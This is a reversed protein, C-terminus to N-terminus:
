YVSPTSIELLDHVCRLTPLILPTPIVTPMTTLSHSSLVTLCETTTGWDYRVKLLAQLAIDADDPDPKCPAVPPVPCFPSPIAPVGMTPAPNIHLPQPLQIPPPLPQPPHYRSPLPPPVGSLPGVRSPIPPVVQNRRDRALLQAPTLITALEPRRPVNRSRCMRCRLHPYDMPLIFECDEAACIRSDSSRVPMDAKVMSQTPNLTASERFYPFCSGQTRSAQLSRSQRWERETDGGEADTPYPGINM